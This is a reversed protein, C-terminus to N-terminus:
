KVLASAEDYDMALLPALTLTSDIKSDDYASAPYIGKAIVQSRPIAFYVRDANMRCIENYAETTPECVTYVTANELSKLRSAAIANQEATGSASPTGSGKWAGNLIVVAGCPKGQDAVSKSAATCAMDMFVGDTPEIRDVKTIPVGAWLSAFVGAVVAMALILKKM